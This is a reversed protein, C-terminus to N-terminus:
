PRLSLEVSNKEELLIWYTLKTSLFLKLSMLSVTTIRASFNSMSISKCLTRTETLKTCEVYRKGCVKCPILYILSSSNCHFYHNIKSTGKTVHSSVESCEKVNKDVQFRSANFKCSGTTRQLPYLKSWVLHSRLNHAIYFSVLSAITFM